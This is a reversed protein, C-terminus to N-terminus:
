FITYRGLGATECKPESVIQYTSSNTETEVHTSDTLCVREATCSSYDTAWVYTAEGWKHVHPEEGQSNCSCLILSISVISFAFKIKNIKM